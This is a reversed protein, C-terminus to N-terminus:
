RPLPIELLVAINYSVLLSEGSLGKDSGHTDFLNAVQKRVHDHGGYHSLM